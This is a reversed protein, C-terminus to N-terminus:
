TPQGWLKRVGAKLAADVLNGTARLSGIRPHQAQVRWTEKLVQLLRRRSAGGDTLCIVVEDVFATRMDEGLGLLFAYDGAIRYSSTSDGTTRSSGDVISCQRTSSTSTVCSGGGIGGNM